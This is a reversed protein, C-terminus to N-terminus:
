VGGVAAPYAAADWKHDVRMQADSKLYYTDSAIGARDPVPDDWTADLHYWSSGLRVLNWVHSGSAVTGEIIRAEVGADQLMRYALLAYGQCVASGGVLADYATYHQLSEDYRVHTVIWDHIARVKQEPTMGVGVVEPLLEAVRREVEETEGASERYQINVKVKAAAGFSRITYIYSDVIYKMYDDSAMVGGVLQDVEASLQDRDGSYDATLELDHAHLQLELEDQLAEISAPAASVPAYHFDSGLGVALLLAVLGLRQLPQGLRGRGRLRMM